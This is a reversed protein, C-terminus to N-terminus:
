QKQALATKEPFLEPHLYTGREKGTKEVEVQMRHANAWEDHRVGTVQWSVKMGAKGGAIKFRNGSIEKAIYLNPGPAGIATLQYRFDKNLAEFWDPLQVWAGGRKDLAVTGSYLNMMESSEISSHYLYKNAPDVPDDIKFNKNPANLSGLVNLTGNITGSGATLVGSPMSLGGGLSVTGAQINLGRDSESIWEFAYGPGYDRAAWDKLLDVTGDNSGGDIVVQHIPRYDQLEVSQLTEELFKVQNFSPTVISVLPNGSIVTLVEVRKPPERGIGSLEWAARENYPLIPSVLVQDGDQM